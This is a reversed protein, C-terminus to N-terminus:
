RLIFFTNFIYKEIGQINDTSMQYSAAKIFHQYPNEGESLVHYEGKLQM